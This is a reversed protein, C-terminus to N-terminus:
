KRARSYGWDSSRGGGGEWSVAVGERESRRLRALEEKKTTKDTFSDFVIEVGKSSAIEGGGEDLSSAFDWGGPDTM